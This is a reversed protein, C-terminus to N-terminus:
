RAIIAHIRAILADPAQVDDWNIELVEWGRAMLAGRRTMDARWQERTRHYDGQYEIILRETRLLFDPRLRKGTSTSVLTHNVEPRLGHSVLIVRVHSEPRSEARGDLLGFASRALRVGRRTGAAALVAALATPSVIPLRVNLLFDGAAVLDSLDVQTALDLWTRAPSTVRLGNLSVVSGDELSASHGILGRAHPAPAPSPATVHIREATELEWPLPINYLLAATSHSIVADDRLRAAFMRCLGALNEPPGVRRVGWVSKDLDTARLRRPPLGAESTLFAEPLQPPLPERRVAGHHRLWATV